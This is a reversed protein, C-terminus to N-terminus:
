CWCVSYTPRRGTEQQFADLVAELGHAWDGGASSASAELQLMVCHANCVALEYMPRVPVSTHVLVPRFCAGQNLLRSLLLAAVIVATHVDVACAHLRCLLHAHPLQASNTGAATTRVMQALRLAQPAAM